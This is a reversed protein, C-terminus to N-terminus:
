DLGLGWRASAERSPLVDCAAVAVEAAAEAEPDSAARAAAVTLLGHRLCHDEGVTLRRLLGLAAEPEGRSLLADARLLTLDPTAALLADDEFGSLGVLRNGLRSASRHMDWSLWFAEELARLRAPEDARLPPLSPSVRLSTAERAAAQRPDADIPQPDGVTMGWVNVRHIAVDLLARRSGQVDLVLQLPGMPVPDLLPQVLEDGEEDVARFLGQEGDFALFVSYRHPGFPDEDRRDGLEWRQGVVSRRIARRSGWAHVRVEAPPTPPSVLAIRLDAAFDLQDITFDVQVGALAATRDLQLAAVPGADGMSQVRLLQRDANWTALPSVLAWASPPREFSLMTPALSPALDDDPLGWEDVLGAAATIDGYRLAERVATGVVEPHGQRAMRTWAEIAEHPNGAAQQLTAVHDWPAEEPPRTLAEIALQRAAVGTLGVAQLGLARDVEPDSTLAPADPVPWGVDEAGGAGILVNPEGVRQLVLEDAPDDDLAVPYAHWIGGIRLPPGDPTERVWLVDDADVALLADRGDGDLDAAELGRWHGPYGGIRRLAGGEYVIRHAGLPLLEPFVAANGHPADNAVVLEGNWVTGRVVNGMVLEDLLRDDTDYLRIAYHYPAGAFVVQEDVGDGDADWALTGNVYSETLEAGDPHADVDCDEPDLRLFGVGAGSLVLQLRGNWAAADHPRLDPLFSCSLDRDVSELVGKRWSFLEGDLTVWRRNRPESFREGDRAVCSTKDCAWGRDTPWPIRDDPLARRERFALALAREEAPLPTVDTDFRLRHLDVRAQRVAWAPDDGRDPMGVLLADLGAVDGTRELVAALGEVVDPGGVRSFAEGWAEPTDLLEARRVWIRARTAEDARDLVADLVAEAEAADRGLAATYGTLLPDVDVPGDVPACTWAVAAGLVALGGIGAGWRARHSRERVSWAAELADAFAAASAFRREPQSALATEVPARLRPDLGELDWAGQPVRGLVCRALVAGLSYVDVRVWDVDESKLLEPAMYAPTGIPRRTYATHAEPDLQRTLGFDVLVPEGDTRLVINHPKVDRHVLGRGHLGDVTRAVNAVIRVAEAPDLPREAIVDGLSPGHVWEMAFWPTGQHVGHDLVRVIGPLDLSALTRVEREFRKAHVASRLNTLRKVAVRTATAEAVCLYVAGMGGQGLAGILQYGPVFGSEDGDDLTAELDTVVARPCYWRASGEGAGCQM